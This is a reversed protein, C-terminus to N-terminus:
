LIECWEDPGVISAIQSQVSGFEHASNTNLPTVRTVQNRILKTYPTHVVCFQRSQRFYLEMSSNVYLKLIFINPLTVFIM